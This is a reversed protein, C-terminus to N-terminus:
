KLGIRFFYTILYVLQRNIFVNCGTAVIKEIKAKMKEKEANEIDQVAELSEVKVRSGFIKVKDTDMPTNAVMVKCGEKTKPMGCGIKKELIFGAELYSEKVAGGAKKLVQIYDLNPRGQLRLVADVALAAFHSKEHKLLKSSLTTEAINILDARFKVRDEGNNFGIKELSGRAAEM